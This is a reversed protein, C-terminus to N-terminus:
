SVHLSLHGKNVRTPLPFERNIGQESSLIQMNPCFETIEPDFEFFERYTESNKDYPPFHLDLNAQKM